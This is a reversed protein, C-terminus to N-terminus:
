QIGLKKNENIRKMLRYIIIAILLIAVILILNVLYFVLKGFFGTDLKETVEFHANSSAVGNPYILDLSVIYNGLPLIGTDFNRRFNVEDEVLVTESRTIYVRGNSDKIIYNLTVDLRQKDGMPILTVATLLKEGQPVQYNENLVNINSDFFLLKERVNLSVPIRVSGVYISGNFIGEEGQAYFLVEFQEIEGAGVVLSSPGVMGADGTYVISLNLESEGNNTVLISQEKNTNIALNLNIEEPDVSITGTSAGGGGTGGGGDDGGDDGGETTCTSSCGDGSATNGDDCEENGGVVGDGCVAIVTIDGSFFGEIYENSTVVVNDGGGSNISVVDASIFPILVIFLFFLSLKVLSKM